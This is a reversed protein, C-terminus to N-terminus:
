VITKVALAVVSAPFIRRLWSNNIRRALAAGVLGGASAATAVLSSFFNLVKTVGVAEAFSMRFVAVCAATLVVVYGGSFFGGDQGAGWRLSLLGL